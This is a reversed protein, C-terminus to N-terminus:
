YVVSETYEGFVIRFVGMIEGLTCYARACDLIFPMTNASGRSAQELAALTVGVRENDRERRTRELRELHIREKAPDVYLTPVRFTNDMVYDNVGVIVRENRDVEQQSRYSAEAIEKQFFGNRICELVGGLERV